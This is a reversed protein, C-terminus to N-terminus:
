LYDKSYKHLIFLMNNYIVFRNGNNAPLLKPVKIGNRYLWEMASYVFLLNAEDYYVKKICYSNNNYNIKFVARQKTTDKIKVINIDANYISYKPLINNKITDITFLEDISSNESNIM